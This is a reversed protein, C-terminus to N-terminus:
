KCGAPSVLQPYIISTTNVGPVIYYSMPLVAEQWVGRRGGGGGWAGSSRDCAVLLIALNSIIVLWSFERM